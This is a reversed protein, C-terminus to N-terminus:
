EFDFILEDFDSNNQDDQNNHNDQNDLNDDMNIIWPDEYLQEYTIRDTANKKLLRQLLKECEKSIKITNPLKIDDSNIMFQELEYKDKVRHFPNYGYLFEFLIIGISWIDITEDYNNDKFLEPAMYMPSGCITYSRPIIPTIEKAFGFDCLKLTKRNDTLLINKPKIDRHMIKNSNLYKLGAILQVFYYRVLEEDIPKGIMRSLDGGDCYEMVIYIADNDEIIDYCKVIHPHPNEKIKRIIVIEDNIAKKIKIPIDRITIKKIAVTNKYTVGFVQKHDYLSYQEIIDKNVCSGIYVVAYTGIGIKSDLYLDYSGINYVKDQKKNYNNLISYMIYM